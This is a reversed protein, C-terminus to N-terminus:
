AFAEQVRRGEWQPHPPIDLLHALTPATDLLSVPTQIEYGARIGPGTILWPITMDETMNTGHMRDHGGHDSHLLIIADTPLTNLLLAVATDVREVQRLYAGSMWGHNHGAVDITGFYVFVFDPRDSRIYDAAAQAIVVDGDPDTYCNDRFYSFALSGPRNLDRLNEWNHFFACQKGASKAQELLGPLPRAMPQWDNSMIGHRTPPVSHFISTHCPLTLSPMVSSARMTYASHALLQDIAPTHALQLADPRLGDTMIFVITSLTADETPKNYVAEENQL